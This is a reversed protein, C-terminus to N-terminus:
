IFIKLFSFYSVKGKGNIPEDHVDSEDDSGSKESNDDVPMVYDEDNDRDGDSVDEYALGLGDSSETDVVSDEPIDILGEPESLYELGDSQAADSIELGSELVSQDNDPSRCRNLDTEEESESEAQTKNTETQKSTNKM